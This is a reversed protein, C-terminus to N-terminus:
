VCRFHALEARGLLRATLARLVDVAYLAVSQSTHCAAAVLHAAVVGWLKGWVLRIRGATFIPRSTLPFLGCTRMCSLCMSRSSSFIWLSALSVPVDFCPAGSREGYGLSFIACVGFRWQFRVAEDHGAFVVCLKRFCLQLAQCGHGRGYVGNMGYFNLHPM